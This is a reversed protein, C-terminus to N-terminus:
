TKGVREELGRRDRGGVGACRDQEEGGMRRRQSLSIRQCAAMFFFFIHAREALGSDPINHNFVHRM